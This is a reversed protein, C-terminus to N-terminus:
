HPCKARVHLNSPQLVRITALLIVLALYMTSAQALQGNGMARECDGFHCILIIALSHPRLSRRTQCDRRMKQMARLGKQSQWVCLPRLIRMKEESKEEKLKENKWKRQGTWAKFKWEASLMSLPTHFHLSFFPFTRLEKVNILGM